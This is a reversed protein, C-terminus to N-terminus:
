ASVAATAGFYGEWAPEITAMGLIIWRTDRPAFPKRPLKWGLQALTKDAKKGNCRLCAAVVNEWVHAGGRSRPVVHDISVAKDGCYQCAGADRALVALLNLVARRQYPLKVYRLLRIVSPARMSIRPSRLVESGEEVVEAKEAIVLVLARRLPILRIPEYSANLLLTAQM